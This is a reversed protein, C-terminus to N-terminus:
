YRMSSTVYSMTPLSSPSLKETAVMMAALERPLMNILDSDDKDDIDDIKNGLHANHYYTSNYHEQVNASASMSPM